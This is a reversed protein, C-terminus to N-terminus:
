VTERDSSELVAQATPDPLLRTLAFGTVAGYTLGLVLLRAPLLVSRGGSGVTSALAMGLAVGIASALIWWGSGRVQRRLVFWQAIGVLVVAGVAAIRLPNPDPPRAPAVTPFQAGPSPVFTLFFILAGVAVILATSIVWWSMDKLRQRFMLWHAGGICAGAFLGPTGFALVAHHLGREPLPLQSMIWFRRVGLFNSPPLM